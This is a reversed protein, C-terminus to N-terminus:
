TVNFWVGILSNPGLGKPNLVCCTTHALISYIPLCGKNSLFYVKYQVYFPISSSCFMDNTNLSFTVMQTHMRTLFFHMNSECEDFLSLMHLLYFWLLHKEIDPEDIVAWVSLRAPTFAGPSAPSSCICYLLSNLTFIWWSKSLLHMRWCHQARFLPQFLWVGMPQKPCTHTSPTPPTSKHTKSNLHSSPSPCRHFYFDDKNMVHAATMDWFPLIGSQSYEFASEMDLTNSLMGTSPFAAWGEM